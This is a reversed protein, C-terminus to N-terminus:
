RPVKAADWVKVTKDESGSVIRKGDPSFAVCTVWETHGKLTLLEKGLATEAPGDPLALLVAASAVPFFLLCPSCTVPM